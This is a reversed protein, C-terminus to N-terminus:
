TSEYTRIKELMRKRDTDSLDKVIDNLYFQLGGDVDTEDFKKKGEDLVILRNAVHKIRGVHNSVYIVAGTQAQEKMQEYCKARFLSDGVALAEDIIFIDPNTHVAISYALRSGMGSSFNGLPMDIFKRLGSFEIIDDLKSDIEDKSMGYMSGKIYINERGTFLPQMGSKLAFLSIVRKVSRDYQIVGADIPYIGYLLRMLTTKGSGNKGIIGLIDGKKVELSVNKVAWFEGKRLKEVQRQRGFINSLVDISGYYMSRKLNKCFRKSVNDATLLIQQSDGSM